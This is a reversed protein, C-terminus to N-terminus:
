PSQAMFASFSRLKLRFIRGVFRGESESSESRLVTSWESMHEGILETQVPTGVRAIHEVATAIGEEIWRHRDAVSPFSFHGM